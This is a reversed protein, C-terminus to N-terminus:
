TSAPDGLGDGDVDEYVIAPNECCGGFDDEISLGDCVGACDYVATGDCIGFCDFQNSACQDNDDLDNEVWGDHPNCALQFVESNGLSDADADQYLTMPDECCDGWFDTISLGNCVGACDEVAPGDCVGACDFENSFCNDDLDDSNLVYGEPQLCAEMSSDPDGLGDGDFDLYWIQGPFENENDDNCDQDDLVYGPPMLCSEFSSNADGFGDQDLDLYWVQGPFENPDQDNCDTNDLVWGDGPDECSDQSVEPDGFMDSDTDAYYSTMGPGDCVGCVDFINSECYNTDDLDLNNDAYGAPMTCQEITVDPVGWGDGDDDLYWTILAECCEGISDEVWSGNCNGACDEVNEFCGPIPDSCDLVWGNEVTADCYETQTGDNGFGDSDDDLCYIFSQATGDCVGACDMSANNGNCVGCDDILLTEPDPNWCDPEPDLNNDVWEGGPDSCFETGDGAGFGDGDTDEYYLTFYACSGDDNTAEPNYNCADPDICGWVIDPIYTTNQQLPSGYDWSTGLDDYMYTGVPLTDALAWSNLNSNDYTPNKLEMAYGKNATGVPWGSAADYSVDDILIGNPDTLLMQGSNTGLSIDAFASYPLNDEVYYETANIDFFPDDISLLFYGNASLTGSAFIEGNLAWGTMDIDTDENNYLEVYDPISTNNFRFFFENIVVDYVEILTVESIVTFIDGFVGNGTSFTLSTEYEKQESPRWVRVGVPNGTIYGPLITGGFSCNDVSGVAPIELQIGSWISDGVVVEGINGDCNQSNTIDFGAFDFVGIEDGPMLGTISGSFIILQSVGTPSVS